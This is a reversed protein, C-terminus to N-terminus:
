LFCRCLVQIYSFIKLPLYFTWWITRFVNHSDASCYILLLFYIRVKKSQDKILKRAADQLEQHKEMFRKTLCKQKGAFGPLVDYKWPPLIYPLHAFFPMMHFEKSVNGSQVLSLFRELVGELLHSLSIDGNLYAEIGEKELDARDQAGPDNNGLLPFHQSMERNSDLFFISHGLDKVAKDLFEFAYRPVFFVTPGSFKRSCTVPM